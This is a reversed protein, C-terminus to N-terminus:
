PTGPTSTAVNSVALTVVASVQGSITLQLPTTDSDPLGPPVVANVQYLGTSGPTMGAFNVEAPVGGITATLPTVTNTLFTLPTATGATLSPTVAGLGACYIVLTDGAMAPANQDARIQNGAADIKYIHGQGSGSADVTFVAPRAVGVTVSQPVSLSNDRQLVVQHQANMTLDYPVVANVQGSSTYFLPIYEGDILVQTDLLQNPLPVSTASMAASSLSVGFIAVLDGPAVPAGYAATEVVGGASVAPIAPNVTVNGSIQATGTLKTDPQTASLTLVVSSRPNGPPWTTTWVGSASPDLRLPPDGNSFSVVVEGTDMPNGCDDLITVEVSTPWAAPVNFSDGVLTFVPLLKTPTCAGAAERAQSSNSSTAAGAAVVLLLRVTRTSGDSFSLTLQATTVGAPMNTFATQVGIAQSQGPGLSGVGPSVNFFSAGTGQLSSTFSVNTSAPNFVTITKSPPNGAGTDATFIVGTRDISPSANATVNFVVTVGQGSNPVDASAILIRGYYTGMALNAPNALVQIPTGPTAVTSTGSLPNASLWAGGSVTSTTLSFNITGSGTLVSFAQGPIPPGGQVANFTLGTQSTFLGRAIITFTVAASSQGGAIAQLTHTGAALPPIQIAFAPIPASRASLSPGIPLAFTSTLLVPVDKGDIQIEPPVPPRAAGVGDICIYVTDGPNPTPYKITVSNVNFFYGAPPILDRDVIAPSTPTITLAFATSTGGATQVTLTTSGVPTGAPVQISLFTDTIYFLTCQAGGLFVLPATGFGTGRVFAYSAPSLASGGDFNNVKTVTPLPTQGALTSVLLLLGCAFKM